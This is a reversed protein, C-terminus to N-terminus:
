FIMIVSGLCIFSPVYEPLLEASYWDEGSLAREYAAHCSDHHEQAEAQIAAQAKPSKKAFLEKAIAVRRSLAFKKADDEEEDSGEPYAADGDGDGDTVGDRDADIGGDEASAKGSSTEAEKDRNIDTADENVKGPDEEVEKTNKEPETSSKGFRRQYEAEVEQALDSFKMYFKEIPLRRPPGSHTNLQALFKDFPNKDM